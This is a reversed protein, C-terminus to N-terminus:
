LNVEGEERIAIGYLRPCLPRSVQFKDASLMMATYTPNVM